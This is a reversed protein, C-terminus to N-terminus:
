YEGWALVRGSILKKHEGKATHYCLFGEKDLGDYYGNMVKDAQLIKIKGKQFACHADWVKTVGKLGSSMHSLYLKEFVSIFHAYFDDLRIREGYLDVLSVVEREVRNGLKQSDANVNLGFGAVLADPKNNRITSELLIGALKRDGVVLDNPWKYRIDPHDYQEYAPFTIIARRLIVAALLTLKLANHAPIDPRCLVSLSMNDGPPAVWESGRAGRGADQFGAAIIMGEGAGNRAAALLDSNTSHTQEKYIFPHGFIKTKLSTEIKEYRM